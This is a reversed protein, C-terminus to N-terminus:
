PLPPHVTGWFALNIWFWILNAFKGVLGTSLVYDKCEGQDSWSMFNRSWHKKLADFVRLLQKNQHSSTFTPLFNWHCFGSWMENQRQISAMVSDGDVHKPWSCAIFPVPKEGLTKSPQLSEFESHCFPNIFQTFHLKTHFWVSATKLDFSCKARSLNSIRPIKTHNWVLNGSM